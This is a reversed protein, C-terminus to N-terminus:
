SRRPLTLAWTISKAAELLIWRNNRAIHARHSGMPRSQVPQAIRKPSARAINRVGTNSAALSDPDMGFSGFSGFFFTLNTHFM